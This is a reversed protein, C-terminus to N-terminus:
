KAAPAEVEILLDGAEISDNKKVHIAKVVGEVTSGVITEM